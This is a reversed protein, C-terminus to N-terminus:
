TYYKYTYTYVLSISPSIMSLLSQEASEDVCTYEISLLSFDVLSRVSNQTKQEPSNPSLEVLRSCMLSLYFYLFLGFIPVPLFCVFRHHFYNLLFVCVVHIFFSLPSPSLSLFLPIQIFFLLFELKSTQYKNVIKLSIWKMMMM